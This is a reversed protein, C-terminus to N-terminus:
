ASQGPLRARVHQLQAELDSVRQLLAIALAIGHPELDFSQRLRYATRVTVLCHGGFVWPTAEPRLPVVAGFEVLEHLETSSLGSLEALEAMSFERADSMWTAEGSRTQM